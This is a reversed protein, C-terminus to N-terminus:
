GVHGRRAVGHPFENCDFRPLATPRLRLDGDSIDRSEVNFACRVGLEILISETHGDFSHHGGFPYCFTTVDEVLLDTLTALSRELDARQQIPDLTSMVLHQDGHSGVIMGARCLERLQEISCYYGDAVQREDVGMTAVLEDIVEDRHELAIFYNLIRKFEDTAADDDLRGYTTARFEAVHRPELMTPDLRDRLATLLQLGGFRGVLHHLRHVALLRGTRYPATPVFFIGWLGRERLIPLVTQAHDVLADDFTLVVGDPSRGDDLAHEFDERSVFGFRDGFWDLQREFDESHLFRQHALASEPRRVYHYM